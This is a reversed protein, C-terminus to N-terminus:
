PKAAKFKDEAAKIWKPHEPNGPELTQLKKLMELAKTFDNQQWYLSSLSRLANLCNPDLQLAQLLASQAQDLQQADFHAQGLNSWQRADKPRLQAAKAFWPVAERPNKQLLYFTGQASMVSSNQPFMRLLEALTSKIAPWHSESATPQLKPANRKPKQGMAQYLFQMHPLRLVAGVANDELRASRPSELASQVFLTVEDRWIAARDWAIVGWGLILIGLLAAGVRWRNMTLVVVPLLLLGGLMPLYFFREAMYQLMPILNSVPLMLLLVWTLGMGALVGAPTLPASCRVPLQAEDGRSSRALTFLIVAIVLALIVAGCIVPASLLAYRGTQFSYDSHFPPGGFFLRLYIPVTPFMDVLTQWRSGSLPSVQSIRGVVLHHHVLHLLGVAVFGASKIFSLKFTEGRLYYFVLFIVGAFPVASEKSYVAIAFVALAVTYRKASLTDLLLLRLTALTFTTAMLDDLCKAWSVVETVVPHVAFAAAAIFGAISHRLPDVQPFLRRYIQRAVSFFLLVGATHWLVNALHFLWPKPPEGGGLTFLLTYHLNRLPRFLPFNESMDAQASLQTFQAPLNKFSRISELNVIFFEDDWVFQFGVTRVWFLM